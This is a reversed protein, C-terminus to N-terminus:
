QNLKLIVDINYGCKKQLYVDLKKLRIAEDGLGKQRYDEMIEEVRTVRTGKLLTDSHCVIKEETTRPIYDMDPLHFHRATKKLLGAGVHTSCFRAIREDYGEKRLISYGEAGHAIGMTVTKGIDHLLAGAELLRLDVECGESMKGAVKACMVSHAILNEDAGYKRLLDLCEERGPIRLVKKGRAQPVIKLEGELKRKRGLHELFIALASVESHPQNEVAINYDVIEYVDRPVKEAGVVILINENRRIEGIKRQYPIGYMTLHVKIGDFTKMEEKLSHFEIKFEGGFKETVKEITHRLKQDEKDVVIKDAGFARSVLAVHTTIRKDREPRHGIRMM